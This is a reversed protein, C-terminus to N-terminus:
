KEGAAWRDVIECLLHVIMVHMEQVENATVAHPVILCHDAQGAIKGGGRGLLAVTIASKQKGAALARLVNPSNGSTSLGVVVDGPSALATVQRAFIEEFGYDNAICTLATGDSTLSIAPLARRQRQFRGIMEEALHQADAASGGNGFTLVKKGAAFADCLIQGVQQIQPGLQDAVKKATEAHRQIYAEIFDAM